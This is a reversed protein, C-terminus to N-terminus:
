IFSNITTHLFSEAPSNKTKHRRQQATVASRM